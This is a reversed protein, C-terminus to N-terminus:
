KVSGEYCRTIYRIALENSQFTRSLSYDLRLLSRNKYYPNALWKGQNMYFTGINLRHDKNCDWVRYLSRKCDDKDSDIEYSAEEDKNQSKKYSSAPNEGLLIVSFDLAAEQLELRIQPMTNNGKQLTDQCLRDSMNSPLTIAKTREIISVITLILM